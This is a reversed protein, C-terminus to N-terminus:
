LEYVHTNEIIKVKNKTKDSMQKEAHKKLFEARTLLLKKMYRKVVLVNSLKGFLGFPSEFYFRNVMITKNNEEWFIHEHRYSKFAGFVMEDVFFHPRDYNTIKSTLHQVLGFHIAEWSVWEGLTIRGSTKGAIAIERTHKLSKKHLDIDTAIDFCTNIDSRIETKVEVLPM